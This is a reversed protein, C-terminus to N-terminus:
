RTAGLGEAPATATTVFTITRGMYPSFLTIPKTITIQLRYDSSNVIGQSSVAVDSPRLGFLGARNNGHVNATASHYVAYNKINSTDSPNYEHVSAWRATDRARYSLYQCQMLAQGVDLVGIVLCLLPLLVLSTEVFASGRERGDANKSRLRTSASM